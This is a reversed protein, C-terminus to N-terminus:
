EGSWWQECGDPPAYQRDPEFHNWITRSIDRLLAFGANDHEWSTDAQNKTIASLVYPSSPANVIAVESRSRDIAGQKSATQVYPPIVGIAEGRFWTGSLARYMEESASGNVARRDYIMVMLEAMERPTTQGWGFEDYEAERGPTRSNVRTHEFGGSVLWDNIATGTGALEQLWLSATNDSLSLMLHVLRSVTITEGDRFSGLIDHGPYERSADYILEDNYDIDGREIAAFTAILIPVKILSATPFVEDPRISIEEGSPLRRVYVGVDGDFDHVLHSLEIM